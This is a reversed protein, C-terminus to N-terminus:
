SYRALRIGAFQWRTEPPFFNRYSARIHARPTVCSGGRLVMQNCMFKGNYEGLAGDLTRYGPYPSYASSTWEWVDGFSQNETLARLVRPHLRGTELLNGDVAEHRVAHEWEAESPLRAGSWRAYADAEYYSVHCVPEDLALPRPGGLTFVQVLEGTSADWYLPRSVDNQKKWRFGDSLWLEAREYGGDRMFELYEGNTVLRTGLAYALLYHLHAPGENDFSFGPGDHGIPVLGAAFERFVHAPLAMSVAAAPEAPLSSCYVPALPSQGLLHKVDTLILEQHQEEHNVGLEVLARLADTPGHATELLEAVRATVVRRYEYIESLPPRTILGRAARAVRAGLAEYYSNFLYGYEPRFARFGPTNSLVFTEFFWSTHALHWKAPSADPMSQAGADEASLEACLAETQARVRLFRAQLTEPSARLMPEVSCRV